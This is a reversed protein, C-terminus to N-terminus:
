TAEPRETQCCGHRLIGPSGLPCKEDDFNPCDSCKVWYGPQCDLCDSICPALDDAYCWCSTKPFVLGDYGHERLWDALITRVTTNDM